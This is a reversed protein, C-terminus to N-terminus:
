SHIGLAAQPYGMPSPCSNSLERASAQPQAGDLNGGWVDCGHAKAARIERGEINCRGPIPQAGIGQLKPRLRTVQKCNFGPNVANRLREKGHFLDIMSIFPFVQSGM